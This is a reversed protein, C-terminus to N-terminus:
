FDKSGGSKSILKIENIVIQKNVAKCMDYITLAAISVATIAEMEVGTKSETKVEATIIVQEKSPDLIAKVHIKNLNINHCLPILKSTLKAGMIGAIESVALVDGKKIQNQQILQCAEKGIWVKGSAIAIRKTIKKDSVDVMKAKGSSEDIHTLQSKTCFTRKAVTFGRVNIM